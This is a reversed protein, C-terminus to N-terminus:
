HFNITRLTARGKSLLRQCCHLTEHGLIEAAYYGREEALFFAANSGDFPANLSVKVAEDARAPTLAALLGFTVAGLLLRRSRSAVRVSGFNKAM